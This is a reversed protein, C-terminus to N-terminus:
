TPPTSEEVIQEAVTLAKACFLRTVTVNWERDLELPGFKRPPQGGQDLWRLLGRAVEEIVIVDRDRLAIVLMQLACDPDIM